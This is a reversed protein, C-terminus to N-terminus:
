CSRILHNQLLSERFWSLSSQIVQIFFPDNQSHFNAEEAKNSGWFSQFICFHFSSELKSITHLQWKRFERLFSVHLPYNSTQLDQHCEKCDDWTYRNESLEESIDTFTLCLQVRFTCNESWQNRHRYCSQEEQIIYSIDFTNRKFDM